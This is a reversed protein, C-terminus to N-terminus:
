KEVEIHDVQIQSGNNDPVNSLLTGYLHVIKGSDRVTKIQEQVEPDMSSVGFFIIQGLNQREFYDDYQLAM